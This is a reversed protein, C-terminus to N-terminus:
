GESILNCARKLVIREPLISGHLEAKWSLRFTTSLLSTAKTIKKHGKTRELFKNIYGVFIYIYIYIYIFYQSNIEKFELLNILIKGFNIRDMELEINIIAYHYISSKDIM